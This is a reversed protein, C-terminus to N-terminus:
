RPADALRPSAASSPVWGAGDKKPPVAQWPVSWDQQPNWMLWGIGGSGEASKIEQALYNPGYEPSKYYMAQLWPRVQALPRKDSKQTQEITGKTGVGVLEPHNGPEEFGYFGKSFHSPYVMPSLAECEPALMPPDQGLADIDIRKGLAVVGFIDLSLPVNRAKTVEHVRRVFGTIVDVKASPNAKLDLHFDANKIALVPYRVYDLQIEDVGNDLAEKVLALIYDQAGPNQPDLWGNGYPGGWKGRVSIEPKAKAMFDDEFCSIRAIVRIGRKHAFRVTRAYSRIPANKTAGAEVALPVKSPYTLPGDYDKVDLVIANIGRAAMKTLMGIFGPRAASDGRVYFGRIQKDEPWGLREDDASKFPEEVLAPIKLRMGEHVGKRAEPLNSSVIEKALDSTFYIETLDLYAKAISEWTEGKQAVHWVEGDVLEGGQPLREKLWAALRARPEARASPGPGPSPGPSPTPTPTPTPGPTPALGPGRTVAGDRAPAPRTAARPTSACACLALMAPALINTKMGFNSTLGRRALLNEAAM